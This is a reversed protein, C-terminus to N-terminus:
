ATATATLGKVATAVEHEAMKQWARGDAEQNSYKEAVVDYLKRSVDRNIDAYQEKTIEASKWHPALASKVIKSISEKAEISMSARAPSIAPSRPLKIEARRRPRPQRIETTPSTSQEHIHKHTPEPPPSRSPSYDAPPYNPEVRSTLPLPSGPRKSIHPPPTISLARPTHYNSTSPSPSAAPSTPSSARNPVIASTSWASGDDSTATEVERLLSSLFSPEGSTDIIPRPPSRRANVQRIFLPAASSSSSGPADLVRRTRPRKLKREPEKPVEDLEVPAAPSATSSRSKRKRNRTGPSITDAEKARELAGWARVEEPTEVPTQPMRDRFIPAVDSFVDRAGQSDAIRMRQRWQNFQRTEDATRTQHQRFTSMSQDDDSFDLDLGVAAHVSNSIDNWAGLWQNARAHRRNRRVTAQTRPAPPPPLPAGRGAARTYAGDEACEM